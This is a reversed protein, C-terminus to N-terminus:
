PVPVREKLEEFFNLIIRLPQSGRTGDRPSEETILFRGDRAVDYSRIHNLWQYAGRFLEIPASPQFAPSSQVAVGMISSPNVNQVGKFYFLEDGAASWTPMIGGSDSIPTKDALGPYSVVYVEYQGTEDSAYALWRGNPSLAPYDENYSEMLIPRPTEEPRDTDLVLIDDNTGPREQVFLLETSDPVWAGAFQSGRPRTLPQPPQSGDVVQWFLNRSGAEVARGFVIRDGDPSWAGVNLGDGQLSQATGRRLDYILVTREFQDSVAIRGGDPSIRPNFFGGPRIGVPERNGDRDVWVLERLEAPM